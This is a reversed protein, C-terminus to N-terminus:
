FQEPEIHGYDGNRKKYVINMDGSESNTFVYFDKNLTELQLIAEEVDMPRPNLSVNVIKKTSQVTISNDGAEFSIKKDNNVHHNDRLKEKYKTLQKEIIDTVKDIAAYLDDEQSVGKLISGNVAVRVEATQLPGKKSRGASLTANIELINDFYRSFRSFKNECYTRIAETIVINRSTINITKM